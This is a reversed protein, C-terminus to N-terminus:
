CLDPRVFANMQERLAAALYLFFFFFGTRLVCSADSYVRDGPAHMGMCIHMVHGAM